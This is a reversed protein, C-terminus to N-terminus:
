DIKSGGISILWNHTLRLDTLSFKLVHNKTKEGKKKNEKKREKEKKRKKKQNNFLPICLKVTFLASFYLKLAHNKLKNMKAFCATPFHHLLFIKSFWALLYSLM